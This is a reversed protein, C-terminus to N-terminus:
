PTPSLQLKIVGSEVRVDGTTTSYYGQSISYPGDNIKEPLWNFDSFSASTTRMLYEVLSINSGEWSVVVTVKQTSPDDFGGSSVIDGSENRNVNEIYFYSTYVIQDITTTAEGGQFEWGSSVTVVKYHYSSGKNGPCNGNPPCYLLFWNSEAVTKIAEMTQQALGSAATIQRTKRGAFFSTGITGAIGGIIIGAVVIAVLIEALVQGKEKIDINM